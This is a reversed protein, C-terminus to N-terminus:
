RPARGFGPVLSAAMRTPNVCQQNDIWARAAPDDSAVQLRAAAEHALMGADDYAAAATRLYDAAERDRGAAAALGARLSAAFGVAYASTTRAIRSADRAAQRRLRRKTAGGSPPAADGITMSALAARARLFRLCNAPVEMALIGSRRLEPWRQMVRTWAAGPRSAYIDAQAVTLLHQYHQTLFVDRPWANIAADALSIAVDPEDRLLWAAVSEGMHCSHAAFLDGRESAERAEHQVLEDLRALGGRLALAGILYQNTLAIEFFAGRCRLRYTDLAQELSPIAGVWDGSLWAVIGEAMAVWAHDYAAAEPHTLTRAIQLARGAARRRRAGGWSALWTAEYAFSQAVRSRDGCDLADLFHRTSLAASLTPNVMSVAVSTSWMAKARIARHGDAADAARHEFAVGRWKLRARQWVFSRIGEGRREPLREGLHKLVDRMAAIGDEVHGCRMLQEAGRRRLDARRASDRDSGDLTTAADRFAWGAREGRGSNALAEALHEYLRTRDLTADGHKLALEYLEAARAFALTQNALAAADVAHRAAASLQQAGMFHYVLLDPDPNPRKGLAEAVALHTTKLRPADLRGRVADAIRDHYPQVTREGDRDLTTVLCRRELEGLAAAGTGIGLIDFTVDQRLPAGAVCAIELLRQLSPELSRYRREVLDAVREHSTQGDNAAGPADDGARFGRVLEGIFFPSGQSERAIVTNDVATALGGTSALQSALERAADGALPGVEVVACEYRTFVSLLASDATDVDRFSVLARVPAGTKAGSATTRTVHDLTVALVEASDTDAWQADDIWLMTTQRGSGDVLLDGLGRAAERRRDIPNSAAALGDLAALAPVRRLVPFLQVLAAGRGPTLRACRSPDLLLARSLDDVIQDLAKYPVTEHPHCRGRLVCWDNDVTALFRRILETKGIGSEGRVLVVTAGPTSHDTSLGCARRLSALERERGVFPSEDGRADEWSVSRRAPTLPAEAVGNRGDAGADQLRAVIAASDPRARPDVELLESVLADLWTPVEPALEGLARDPARLKSAAIEHAPGEYPLRGAIAEFLVVGLAYWDVATSVGQSWIQEPAMYAVTGAFGAMAAQERPDPITPGGLGFDLVVARPPEEIAVLINSPKLDRHVLDLRHLAELASVMQPLMAILRALRDAIPTAPDGVVYEDFPVGRILEMTFFCDRGNSRLDYLAVLNPHRIDALQRFERKLAFAREAEDITLHKLAVERGSARERARRVEGMSGSGLPELLEYEDAIWNAPAM